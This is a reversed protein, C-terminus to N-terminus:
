RAGGAKMRLRLKGLAWSTDAVPELRVSMQRARFRTSQYGKDNDLTIPGVTRLPASPAQRLNFTLQYDSTYTTGTSPNYSSGDPWIRDVRMNQEGNGIEFEGTQAYIQGVRTAGDALSGLEHLYEVENNYMYPKTDWIPNLWATRSLKGKSWYPEGAISVFVYSDPKSSGQSPYFAWIERNYANYGLFVNEPSTLNSNQLIDEDVPSQLPTVNGDYRWFGEKSLWIAMGTVSVLANKSVCGVEESLRRRAYYYPAGVYEIIHADVDTIVLIGGQVRVAAIIAGSSNLEFGGATNTATPTWSTMNERDCWKVRRPNNKGGLVMIMREDTVVVLTNDVPANAVPTAITNPTVPDWSFLRGDQTHVAVLIRGFNDMSWQGVGDVSAGQTDSYRGNGYPGAGYGRGTSYSNSLGSPTINYITEIAASPSAVQLTKDMGVAYWANKLNDRWSFVDRVVNLVSPGPGLLLEEDTATRVQSANATFDLSMGRWEDGLLGLAPGFTRGKVWGGIPTLQSNVWRVWNVDWWRQGVSYPTGNRVVGPPIDLVPTNEGSM